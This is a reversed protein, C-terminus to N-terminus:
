GRKSIYDFVAAPVYNEFPTGFVICNKVLTSSIHTHAQESPLYVTVLAPSLDRSAYFDDTEYTFDTTNRVGRVYFNTNEQKLLEVIVGEWILVRVRPEDAFVAKIMAKREEASFTCSKKKNEAVAVIVEDFIQLSKKVTDEHGVTFPDFTGAFVCKKM